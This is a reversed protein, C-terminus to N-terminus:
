FIQAFSLKVLGLTFYNYFYDSHIDVSKKNSNPSHIKMKDESKYFVRSPAGLSSLVSQCTDGFYVEKTLNHSKYELFRSPGLISCLDNLKILIPCLALCGESYLHLRLGTTKLGERIVEVKALYINNMYVCVPLPPAKTESNNNGSYIAMCSVVPSLGSTFQLSGLGLAYDPQFVYVNLTNKFILYELSVQYKSDVPFYFTLGRFNLVFLQKASDYMGPHTAGFSNEIQEVTPVVEQSNFVVGCYKLRVLKMNYVEIVQLNLIKKIINGFSLIIKVKLRQNM